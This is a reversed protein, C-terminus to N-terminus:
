RGARKAPPVTDWVRITRDGSASVLRSGDPSFALAHVYDTHGSLEALEQRTAVDWIRILNDACAVALLKGDATFAVAHPTAGQSMRGVERWTATDWLRVTHDYSGSALLTGARNWGLAYVGGDHGRLVQVATRTAVDWIRVTGDGQEGASALRAGDPSFAVDRVPASHKALTGVEARTNVDWLRVVGDHGGAALLDGRPGFALRSDCWHRSPVPWRHLERGTEGDWLRVSDDRCLTALYRGTPHYAVSPVIGSEVAPGAHRLARVERRTNTDWVRATGDWASSAVRVGDPHFAVSYVFKTHGRMAYDADLEALDWVRVTGDRSASYIEDRGAALSACYVWDEHGQLVAVQEGSETDWYRLTRDWSASVVRRGDPSFDASEVRGTHGKLVRHASLVQGTLPGSLNWVRVTRDQAGTVLRSEDHNFEVSHIQNEHGKFTALLKGSPVEWLRILNTPYEEVTVVRTGSPAFRIMRVFGAHEDLRAPERGTGVEWLRPGSGDNTSTVVYRGDPSVRLPYSAVAPLQAVALQGGTRADWTRVARDDAYTFVRSGDASFELMHVDGGPIGAAFRLRWPAVDYVRLERSAPTCAVATGDASLRTHNPRPVSEAPGYETRTQLDWVRPQGDEGEVLLRSRDASFTGHHITGRGTIVVQSRDLQANLLQWVWDRHQEPAADLARRASLTDHLRLASSAAFVSVRYREWREKEAARTAEGAAERAKQANVQADSANTRAGNWQWVIGSVGTVAVLLVAVSLLAVAPNRRAWRVTRGAAGVARARIARGEAWRALDAALEEASPYRKAPSKELCKLCITELDRPVGPQLRRPSVPEQRLVLLTTDAFTAGQFPVRATLLEYLIVGLAYVDVMPTAANGRLHEPAMYEPTGLVTGARTRLRDATACEVDIQKAIGFDAIKPVGDRTLLVNAPKLDRHVVGLRHAAHAARALTEVAKAAERPPQPTYTRADLSGGDVFELAIFPSPHTEGPLPEVTGVEFVQIINPHQLRAIAEAEARFREHFEPDALAEGRLMKIAVRRNLERHRAEYVIGMGGSGVVSLVEYGRVCPFAGDTRVPVPTPRAGGPETASEENPPRHLKLTVSHESPDRPAIPPRV